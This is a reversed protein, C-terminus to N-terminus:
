PDRPQIVPATHRSLTVYPEALPEVHFDKPRSVWESVAEATAASLRARRQVTGGYNTDQEYGM